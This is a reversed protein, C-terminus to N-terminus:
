QKSKKENKIIAQSIMTGGGFGLFNPQVIAMNAGGQLVWGDKLAEEVKETLKHEDEEVLVQYKM